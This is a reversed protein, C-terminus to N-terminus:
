PAALSSTNSGVNSGDSGIGGVLDLGMVHVSATRTAPQQQDKPSTALLNTFNIALCDGVNMRLVLPRPRKDPRLQVNGPTLADGSVSVVDSMLAYMMGQPQVAGLRNWFFAQDLAVVDATLTRECTAAQAFSTICFHSLAVMGVQLFKLNKRTM